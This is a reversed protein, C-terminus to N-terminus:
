ERIARVQRTNFIDRDLAVMNRLACLRRIAGSCGDIARHVNGLACESEGM